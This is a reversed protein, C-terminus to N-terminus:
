ASGCGRPARSRGGNTGKGHWRDRVRWAFTRGLVWRKPLKVFGVLGDPREVVMVQAQTRELWAELQKNRYKADGRITELRPFRSWDLQGLLDPATTGDDASAATVLVAMPLGLSDVVM